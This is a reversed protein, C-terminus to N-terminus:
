SPISVIRDSGKIGAAKRRQARGRHGEDVGAKMQAGPTPLPAGVFAVIM